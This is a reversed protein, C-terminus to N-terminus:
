LLTEDWTVGPSSVMLSNIWSSNQKITGENFELSLNINLIRSLPKKVVLFPVAM